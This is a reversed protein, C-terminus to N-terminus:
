TIQKIKSIGSSYLYKFVNNKRELSQLLSPSHSDQGPPAAKLLALWHSAKTHTSVAVDQLLWPSHLASLVAHVHWSECPPISQEISIGPVYM